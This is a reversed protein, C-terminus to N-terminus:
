QKQPLFKKFDRLLETPNKDKAKFLLHIHSPMICYSYILMGRQKRYFDLAQIIAQFYSERIFVDIWYVTSFSVFYTGYLNNMKYKRSM